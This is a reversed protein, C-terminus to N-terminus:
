AIVVKSSTIATQGGSPRIVSAAPTNSAGRTVATRHSRSLRNPSQPRVYVSNTWIMGALPMRRGAFGPTRRPIKPERAIKERALKSCSSVSIEAYTERRCDSRDGDLFTQNEAKM